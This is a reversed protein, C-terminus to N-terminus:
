VALRAGFAPEADAPGEVRDHERDDLGAVGCPRTQGSVGKPGQRARREKRGTRPSSTQANESNAAVAACACVVTQDAVSVALPTPSIPQLLRFGSVCAFHELVAVRDSSSKEWSPDFRVIMLM